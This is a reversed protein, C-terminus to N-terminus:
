GHLKASLLDVDRRSTAERKLFRYGMSRVTEICDHHGAAEILSRLRGVYADVTRAQLDDSNGWVQSLLQERSYVRMPHTVFFHLLRYETPGLTVENGGVTVRRQDQNLCLGDIDIVRQDTQRRDRRNGHDAQRRTRRLLAEVRALLERSNFPKTVYDDAGADLAMVKDLEDDRATLMIVPISNSGIDARLRRVFSLGSQGPMNWDVLILNPTSTLMSSIAQTVDMAQEVVYGAMSLNLRLLEQIGPEDEVILIRNAM